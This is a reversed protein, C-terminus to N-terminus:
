RTARAAPTAPSPDPRHRQGVLQRHRQAPLRHQRQQRRVPHQRLVRQSQVIAFCTTSNYLGIQNASLRLGTLYPSANNCYIGRYQSGMVTLYSATPAAGDFVLAGTTNLSGGYRVIWHALRSPGSTQTFRISEWNGAGPLHRQRRRQHRRRGHRGQALYLRAAARGHGRGAPQRQGDAAQRGRVQRRRGAALDARHQDGAHRPRRDRLAPRAGLHHQGLHQRGPRHRQRLQGSASNGQFVAQSTGGLYVAYGGNRQFTNTAVNPGSSASLWLGHSANERVISDHLGPSSVNALQLGYASSQEVTLHSLPPSASDLTINATATGSGYNYSAGGYRVIAYDLVSVADNSTDAFYITGWDGPAPKTAAGDQQTDGGYADDKLSTFVIPNGATASAVLSGRIVLATSPLFKVVAGPQITLTSSAEVILTVTAM